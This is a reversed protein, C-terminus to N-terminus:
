QSLPKTTCQEHYADRVTKRARSLQMRVATPQMNLFDAIEDYSRDEYDRMRLITQQTPSLKQSILAQVERFREDANERAEAEDDPPGDHEEDIPVAAATQRRRLTDISLNKVTTTMLAAAQNTDKIDKQRVWLRVFADQLADEADEEDGMMRAAMQKLSRRMREYAALVPNSDATQVM